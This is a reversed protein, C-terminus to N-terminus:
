GEKKTKNTEIYQWSQPPRSMGFSDLLLPHQYKLPNHIHWGWVPRTEAYKKLMQIPLQGWEELLIEHARIFVNDLFDKYKIYFPKILLNLYFYGTVKKVPATEYIYVRDCFLVKNPFTHRWEITKKGSYILEAYEPKLSIIINM